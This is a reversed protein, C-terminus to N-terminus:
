LWRTKSQKKPNKQQKKTFQCILVCKYNRPAMDYRRCWNTRYQRPTAHYSGIAVCISM